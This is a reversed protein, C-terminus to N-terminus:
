RPLTPFTTPKMDSTVTKLFALLDAKERDTLNLPKILESRSKRAIGGKDYHEIVEELTTISGDHMYPARRTIERLGPTKFARQAKVVGLLFRGRGLDHSALGIDHFSDDTFNWGSHCVSCQAKGNFLKFGRKADESIAKENGEIWADFPARGSIVTREFTAIAKAVNKATTGEGPFAAEFLERYEDIAKLQTLLQDLPMAMEAAGQIPQLAQEELSEARGDWMYIHGYALNVITPSRRGLRKM